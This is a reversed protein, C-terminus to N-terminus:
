VSTRKNAMVAARKKKFVKAAVKVEESGSIESMPSLVRFGFALELDTKATTGLESDVDCGVLKKRQDFLM